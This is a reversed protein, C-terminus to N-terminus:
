KDELLWTWTGEMSVTNGANAVSMQDTITFAKDTLTDEVATGSGFYEFVAMTSPRYFWLRAFAIQSNTAEDNKLACEYNYQYAAEVGIAATVLSVLTTVGLKLRFTHTTAAAVAAFGRMETRLINRTGLDGAALTATFLTNEAASNSINTVNGQCFYPINDLRADLDLLNDVIEKKYILATILTGTPYATPATWTM